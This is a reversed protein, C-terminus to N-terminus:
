IAKKCKMRRIDAKKRIYLNRGRHMQIKSYFTFNIILTDVPAKNAEKLIWQFKQIYTHILIHLYTHIIYFKVEEQSNWWHSCLRFLFSLEIPTVVGHVIMETLINTPQDTPRDHIWFLCQLEVKSSSAYNFLNSIFTDNILVLLNFNGTFIYLSFRWIRTMNVFSLCEVFIVIITM